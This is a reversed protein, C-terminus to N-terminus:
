IRYALGIRLNYNMPLLEFNESITKRESKTKTPDDIKRAIVNFDILIFPLNIDFYLKESLKYTYRPAIYGSVGIMTNSEPYNTSILSITKLNFLYPQMGCGVSFTGYKNLRSKKTAPTYEYRFSFNFNSIEQGGIITSNLTDLLEDKESNFSLELRNLEIEHTNGNKTTHAIAFKPSLFTTTKETKSILNNGISYNSNNKQFSSQNYLKITITNQNQQAHLNLSIFSALIM